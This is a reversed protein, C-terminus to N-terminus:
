WKTQDELGVSARLILRADAATVAKDKNVDLLATLEESLAELGVSARLSYRADAATIKGNGDADGMISDKEEEATVSVVYVCRDKIYYLVGENYVSSTDVNEAETQWIIEKNVTMLTLPATKTDTSCTIIGDNIAMYDYEFPIVTEGKTNILGYKGDKKVAAYEGDFVSSEDYLYSIVLEGSKNIFGWKGGITEPAFMSDDENDICEQVCALGNSFAGGDAFQLPIVIDGKIDMYGVYYDGRDFLNVEEFISNKFPFSSNISLLGESYIPSLYVSFGNYFFVSISDGLGSVCSIPKPLELIINENKDILLTKFWDEPDAFMDATEDEPRVFTIGDNFVGSFCYNNKLIKNGNLDFYGDTEADLMSRADYWNGKSIIGDSVYYSNASIIYPMIMTGNKQMLGHYGPFYEECYEELDSYGYRTLFNEVTEDGYLNYETIINYANQNDEESHNYNKTLSAFGATNNVIDAEVNTKTVEVSYKTKASAFSLSSLLTCLVVATILLKKLTNHKM